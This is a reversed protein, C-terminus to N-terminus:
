APTKAIIRGRDGEECGSSADTGDSEDGQRIFKEQWHDYLSLQKETLGTVPIESLHNFIMLAYATALDNVEPSLSREEGTAPYLNRFYNIAQEIEPLSIIRTIGTGIKNKTM